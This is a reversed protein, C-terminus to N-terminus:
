WIHDGHMQVLPYRDSIVPQKNRPHTHQYLAKLQPNEASHQLIHQINM